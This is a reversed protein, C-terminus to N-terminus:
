SFTILFLFFCISFNVFVFLFIFLWLFLIFWQSEKTVCKFLQLWQLFLTLSCNLGLIKSFKSSMIWVLLSVITKINIPNHKIINKLIIIFTVDLYINIQSVM